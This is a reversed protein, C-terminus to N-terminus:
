VFNQYLNHFVSVMLMYFMQSMKEIDNMHLSTCPFKNQNYATQNVECIYIEKYLLYVDLYFAFTFNNRHKVLCWAMFAYQPLPSVAGCM